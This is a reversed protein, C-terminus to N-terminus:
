LVEQTGRTPYYKIQIALIVASEGGALPLIQLALTTGTIDNQIEGQSQYIIAVAQQILEQSIVIVILNKGRRNLM